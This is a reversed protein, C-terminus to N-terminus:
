KRKEGAEELKEGIKKKEKKSVTLELWNPKVKM